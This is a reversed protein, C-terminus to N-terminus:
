LDEYSLSYLQTSLGQAWAAAAGKLRGVLSAKKLTSSLGMEDCGLEFMVFFGDVDQTGDFEPLRVHRAAAGAVTAQPPAPAVQAPTLAPLSQPTPQSLQPPQQTSM